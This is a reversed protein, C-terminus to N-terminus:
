CGCRRRRPAVARTRGRRETPVGGSANEAVPCSQPSGAYRQSTTARRRSRTAARARAATTRLEVVPKADIVQDAEEAREDASRAAGVPKTGASSAACRACPSCSSIATRRIRRWGSRRLGRFRAPSEGRTAPRARCERCSPAHPPLAVPVGIPLREEVDPSDGVRRHRRAPRVVGLRMASHHSPAASVLALRHEGSGTAARDPSDGSAGKESRM